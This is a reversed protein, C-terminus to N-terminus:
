GKKVHEPKVDNLYLHLKVSINGAQNATQGLLM